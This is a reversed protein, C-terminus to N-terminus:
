RMMRDLQSQTFGKFKSSKGRKNKGKGMKMQRDAFKLVKNKGARRARKAAVGKRYKGIHRRGHGGPEYDKDRKHHARKAM